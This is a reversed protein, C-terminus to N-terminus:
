KNQIILVLINHIRWYISFFIPIIDTLNTTLDFMFRNTVINSCSHRNSIDYFIYFVTRIIKIYSM